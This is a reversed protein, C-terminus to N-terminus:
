YKERWKSFSIKRLALSRLKELLFKAASQEANLQVTAKAFLKRPKMAPDDCIQM